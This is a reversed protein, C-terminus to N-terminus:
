NGLDFRVQYNGISLLDGAALARNQVTQGNVRTPNTSRLDVVHVETDTVILVAHNRSVFRSPLCIDNHRSRGILLRGPVLPRREIIAGDLMVVLSRQRAPAAAPPSAPLKIPPTRIVALAPDAVRVVAADLDFRERTFQKLGAMGPSDLVRCLSQSGTLMFTAAPVAAVRVRSLVQLFELV